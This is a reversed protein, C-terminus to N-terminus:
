NDEAEVADCRGDEEKKQEAKNVEVEVGERQQGGEGGDSVFGLRWGHCETTKYSVWGVMPPASWKGGDGFRERRVDSGCAVVAMEGRM